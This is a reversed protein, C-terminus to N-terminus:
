CYPIWRCRRCGACPKKKQSKQGTPGTRESPTLFIPKPVADNELVMGSLINEIIEKALNFEILNKERVQSFYRYLSSFVKALDEAPETNPGTANQCADVGAGLIETNHNTQNM